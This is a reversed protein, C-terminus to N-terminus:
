VNRLYLAVYLPISTLLNREYAGTATNIETPYGISKAKQSLGCWEKYIKGAKM